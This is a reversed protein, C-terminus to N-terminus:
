IAGSERLRGIEAPALDLVERLVEETHEGLLPPHRRAEAPTESFKFPFGAQRLTGVTPHELEILMQRALVQPDAFVDAITNVPGAPVGAALLAAMWSAADRSAFIDSLAAELPQRNKLRDPNTRFRDDDALDPRELVKCLARYQFDNGVALIFWKDRAQFLRYPVITPHSNGSRPLLAGAALYASGANALWAVVSELLSLDVHQGEGTRERHRLASLIAICAFMGTTLDAIAVGVKTPEGDPQGTISMIGGMGQAVIDYGPWSAYPGDPGFATISCYVLGANLQRLREYGLELAELAGVKFNEVLVDSQAVLKYLLDRAQGSKLNLTVSRKNRNVAVYYTSQGDAWPPGWARTDDGSGPQEIKVVDAGLDGLMMTCYPGALVRSLDVVRVGELPGPM